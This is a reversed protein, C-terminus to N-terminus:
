PRPGRVRVGPRDEFCPPQRTVPDDGFSARLEAHPASQLPGCGTPAAHHGATVSRGAPGQWPALKRRPPRRRVPPGLSPPAATFGSWIPNAAPPQCSGLARAGGRRRELGHGGRDRAPCLVFIIFICKKAMSKQGGSSGARATCPPRRSPGRNIRPRCNSNRHKREKGKAPHGAGAQCM